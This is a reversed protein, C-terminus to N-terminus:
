GKKRAHHLNVRVVFTNSTTSLCRITRLNCILSPTEHVSWVYWSIGIDLFRTIILGGSTHGIEYEEKCNLFQRLKRKWASVEWVIEWTHKTISITWTLFWNIKLNFYLYIEWLSSGLKFLSVDMKDYHYQFLKQFVWSRSKEDM